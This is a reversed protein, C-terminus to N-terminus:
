LCLNIHSKNAFYFLPLELMCGLYWQVRFDRMFIKGKHDSHTRKQMSSNMTVLRSNRVYRNTTAGVGARQNMRSKIAAISKRDIRSRKKM